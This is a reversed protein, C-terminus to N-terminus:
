LRGGGISVSAGGDVVLTQGNIFTNGESLLYGVAQAVEDADAVRGLPTADTWLKRSPSDPIEAAEQMGTAVPGPAVANVLIGQPALEVALARTLSLIAGKCAAYASRGASTRLGHVSAVNVIRGSGHGVMLRAAAQLAQYAGIVNVSLMAELDDRGTELFAGRRIIGAANVFGTLTGTQCLAQFASDLSAPSTVDCAIFRNSTLGLTKLQANALARHAELDLLVVRHGERHLHSVISAGLGGCAGLVATISPM